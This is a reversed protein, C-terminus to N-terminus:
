RAPRWALTDHNGDYVASGYVIEHPQRSYIKVVISRPMYGKDVYTRALAICVARAFVSAEGQEMPGTPFAISVEASKTQAELTFTPMGFAKGLGSHETAAGIISKVPAYFNNQAALNERKSASQYTLGIIILIIISAAIFIKQGATTKVPVDELIQAAIVNKGCYPCKQESDPIENKCEPCKGM